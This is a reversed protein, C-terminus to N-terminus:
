HVHNAGIKERQKRYYDDLLERPIKMKRRPYKNLEDLGKETPHSETVRRASEAVRRVEIALIQESLAAYPMERVDKERWGYEHAFLDVLYAYWTVGPIKRPDDSGSYGQPRIIEAPQETNAHIRKIERVLARRRPYQKCLTIIAVLAARIPKESERIEKVDPVHTAMEQLEGTLITCRVVDWVTTPHAHRKIEKWEDFFM